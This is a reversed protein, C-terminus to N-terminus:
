FIKLGIDIIIDRSLVRVESRVVDRSGLAAWHQSSASARYEMFLEGGQSVGCLCRAQKVYSSIAVLLLTHLKEKNM